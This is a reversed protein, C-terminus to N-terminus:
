LLRISHLHWSPSCEVCRTKAERSRFEFMWRYEIINRKKWRNPDQLQQLELVSM